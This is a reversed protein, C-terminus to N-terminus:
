YLFSEPLVTEDTRFPPYTVVPAFPSDSLFLSILAFDFLIRAPSLPLHFHFTLIPLFHADITFNLLLVYKKVRM